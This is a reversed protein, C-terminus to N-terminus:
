DESPQQGDDAEILTRIRELVQELNPHGPQYSTFLWRCADKLEAHHAFQRAYLGRYFASREVATLIDIDASALTAMFDEVRLSSGIIGFIKSM